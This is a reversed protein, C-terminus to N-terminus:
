TEQIYRIDNGSGGDVLSSGAGVWLHDIFNGDAGAALNVDGIVRLKSLINGEAGSLYDWTGNVVTGYGSGEVNLGVKDTSVNETFVRDLLKLTGNPELADIADQISDHTAAGMAIDSPYGVVAHHLASLRATNQSATDISGHRRDVQISLDVSSFDASFEITDNTGLVPRWWTGYIGTYQRPVVKGELKVELDGSVKGPNVGPIFPFHLKVRTRGSVVTPQDCNNPTGSGDTVCFASDLVGGNQLLEEAHVNIKFYLLNARDTVEAEEPNPFFALYLSQQEPTMLLRVLRNRSDGGLDEYNGGVLLKGDPQIALSNIVADFGGNLEAYFGTDETGDLNLVVIRNRTNSNFSTFAGAVIIRGKHHFSVKNTPAAFSTGLNTYFSVDETGNANLRVLYNRANGNFDTFAGTVLIKGDPQLSIDNVAGDFATGLNTYFVTDETGDANLRFLRNRTNGNFDQFSGGVLIKGDPQVRVVNVNSGGTTVGTGLNTYFAADVTGDSNLRVLRNRTVGGLTTFNGGAIIKGDPQIGLTFVTLNFAGIGLNSYFTADETGDPNLRVLRNRTNGDFSTFSGGVLIMEGLQIAIESVSNDGPGSGINAIFDFDLLGNELLRLLRPYPTGFAGGAVIKGDNQVALASVTNGGFGSGLNLSFVEDLHGHGEEILSLPYNELQEPAPTRTYVPSFLSSPAEWTAASVSLRAPDVLDPVVDGEDKSDRYEPLIVKPTVGPFADAIRTKQGADGFAIIDKTWVAQSVMCAEATLNVPFPADLVGSAAGTVEKIRRWLGGSYLINEEELTFGSPAGSLTFIDGVTTVTKTKDCKLDILALSTDYAGTTKADVMTDQLGPSAELLDHRSARFGEAPLTDVVGGGEDGSGSGSGVGPQEFNAASVDAITGSNEQIVVQGVPIGSAWVARPADDLTPGDTNALVVQVALNLTNNVNAAAPILTFSLWRFQGVAPVVPAFNNGLPTVGDAEYVVGTVLDIEAGDFVARLRRITQILKSGTKLDVQAAQIIVRKKNVPHEKLRFPRFFKDLEELASQVNIDLASLAGSFSSVATSIASAQHAGPSNRNTLLSHDSASYAAVSTDVAKRLDVVNRIVANVPSDWSVNTEYIVRYLVKFELSPLEGFSLSEYTNNTLADSLDLDQRQGLIAIIPEHIDNTAFIWVAVFAKDTADPQSWTSGDFHNYALPANSPLYGQQIVEATSGGISVNEVDTAPGDSSATAILENEDVVTAFDGGVAADIATKANAAITEGDDGTTVVLEIGTMGVLSPNGGGSDKNIWLYWGTADGQSWFTAYQGTTMQSADAFAFKLIEPLQGTGRLVPYRTAAEKRWHGDNGDRYLVPIKAVPTLEQVFDESADFVEEEASVVALGVTGSDQWSGDLISAFDFSDDEANEWQLKLNQTGLASLVAASPKLVIWYKTDPDLHFAASSLDFVIDDYSGVSITADDVSASALDVGSPEGGDDVQIVVAVPENQAVYGTEFRLRLLAETLRQRNLGSFSFPQALETGTVGFGLELVGASGSAGTTDAVDAEAEYSSDTANEIVIDLDEDLVSGDSLSVQADKALSGDGSTTFGGASLGRNHQTGNVRHLYAHTAHDMSLGHREDSVMVAEKNTADWYVTAVYAYRDLIDLAFNTQFLLTPGDFYFFYLGEVDPIVASVPAVKRYVKKRIYYDFHTTKPAITLTRTGDDFSIQSADRGGETRFGTPEKDAEGTDLQYWGKTGDFTWLSRLYDTGNSVRVLAGSFPSQSGGFANIKTWVVSIGIDSAEYVGDLSAHTFLVRDGNSISQGDVTPSAGAPLVSEHLGIYDAHVVIDARAGLKSIATPLTDNVSLVGYSLSAASYQEFTNESLIGLRNRQVTPLDEGISGTEGSDLQSAGGISLLHPHFEGDKIFGLVQIPSGFPLLPIPRVQYTPTLNAGDLVIYLAEGESMPLSADNPSYTLNKVLDIIKLGGSITLEGANPNEWGITVNSGYIGFFDSDVAGGGVPIYNLIISGPMQIRSLLVDTSLEEQRLATDQDEEATSKIFRVANGDPTAFQVNGAAPDEDSPFAPTVQVRYTDGVLDIDLLDVRTVFYVGNNGAGSGAMTARDGVKPVYSISSPFSMEDANLVLTSISGAYNLPGISTPAQPAGIDTYTSALPESWAEVMSGLQDKKLAVYSAGTSALTTTRVAVGADFKRYVVNSATATILHIENFIPDIEADFALVGTLGLPTSAGETWVRVDGADTFLVFLQRNDAIRIKPSTGSASVLVAAAHANGIDDFVAYSVSGVITDEYAVYLLSDDTAVLSPRSYSGGGTVLSKSATITDGDFNTTAFYLHNQGPNVLVEHVIFLKEEVPSVAIRPFDCPLAVADIIVPSAMSAGADSFKQWTTDKNDGSIYVLHINGAHDLVADFEGSKAQVMLTPAVLEVSRDSGYKTYKIEFSEGYGESVIFHAANDSSILIKARRHPAGDTFIETDHLTQAGASYAGGVLLKRQGIRNESDSPRRYVVRDVRQWDPDPAVVPFVAVEDLVTKRGQKDVLQGASNEYNGGNLTTLLGSIPGVRDFDIYSQEQSKILEDISLYPPNRWELGDYEAIIVENATLDSPSKAFQFSLNNTNQPNPSNVTIYYPAALSPPSSISTSVTKEVYLGNQIFAFAPVTITPGSQSVEGNM